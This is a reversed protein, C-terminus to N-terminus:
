DPKKTYDVDELVIYYEPLNDDAVIFLLNM